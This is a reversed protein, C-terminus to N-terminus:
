DDCNLEFQGTQVGSFGDVATNRSAHWVPNRYWEVGTPMRGRSHCGVLMCVQNRTQRPYQRKLEENQLQVIPLIPREEMQSAVPKRMMPPHAVRASWRVVSSGSVSTWVGGGVPGVAGATPGGVFEASGLWTLGAALAAATCATKILSKALFFPNEGSFVAAMRVSNRSALGAVRGTRVCSTSSYREAPAPCGLTTCGVTSCGCGARDAISPSIPADEDPSEM